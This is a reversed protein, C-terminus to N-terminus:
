EDLSFKVMQRRTMTVAAGQDEEVGGVGAHGHVCETNVGLELWVFAEEMSKFTDQKTQDEPKWVYLETQVSCQDQMDTGLQGRLIEELFGKQSGGDSSLVKRSWLVTLM